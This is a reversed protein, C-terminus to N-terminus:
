LGVGGEEEIHPSYHVVAFCGIWSDDFCDLFEFRRGVCCTEDDEGVGAFAFLLGGFYELFESKVWVVVKDIHNRASLNRM